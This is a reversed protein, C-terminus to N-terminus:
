RPNNRGSQHTRDSILGYLSSDQKEEEEVKEPSYKEKIARAMAEQLARPNREPRQNMFLGEQFCGFLLMVLNEGM